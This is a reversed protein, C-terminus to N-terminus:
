RVLGESRLVQAMEKATLMKEVWAPMDQPFDVGAANASATRANIEDVLFQRWQAASINKLRAGPNRTWPRLHLAPLPMFVTNCRPFTFKVEILGCRVVTKAETHIQVIDPEKATRHPAVGYRSRSMLVGGDREELFWSRVGVPAPCKARVKDYTDYDFQVHIRSTQIGVQCKM